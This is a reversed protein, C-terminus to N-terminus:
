VVAKLMDTLFFLKIETMRKLHDSEKGTTTMRPKRNEVDMYRADLLRKSTFIDPSLIYM